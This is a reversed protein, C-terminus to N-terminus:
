YLIANSVHGNDCVGSQKKTLGHVYEQLRKEAIARLWPHMMFYQRGEERRQPRRLLPETLLTMVIKALLDPQQASARRRVENLSDGPLLSIPVTTIIDGMDVGADVFHVSLMPPAGELIAWEIVNM